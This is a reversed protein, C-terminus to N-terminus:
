MASENKKFPKSKKTPATRTQALSQQMQPTPQKAASKTVTPSSAVTPPKIRNGYMRKAGEVFEASANGSNAKAIAKSMGMTKMSDITGQAVKINSTPKSPKAAM